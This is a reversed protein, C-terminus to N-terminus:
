HSCTWSQQMGDVNTRENETSEVRGWEVKRIENWTEDSKGIVRDTIYTLDL